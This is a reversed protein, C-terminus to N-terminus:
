EEDSEHSKNNTIEDIIIWWGGIAMLFVSFLAILILAEPMTM